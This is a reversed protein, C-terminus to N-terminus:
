LPRPPEPNHMRVKRELVSDITKTIDEREADTCPRPFEGSNCAALLDVLKSLADELGFATITMDPAFKISITGDSQRTAECAWVSVAVLVGGVILGFRRMMTNM